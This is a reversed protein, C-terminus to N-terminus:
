KNKKIKNRIDKFKPFAKSYLKFLFASNVLNFEGIFRVFNGNFGKKFKYLGYLPNEPNLDGSVGRFDYINCGLDITDQIMKWQMLFNPMTDRLEDNSAGYLYWGKNGYYCYLAGSIYFEKKDKYVEISNIKEKFGDIQRTCEKINKNLTNYKKCLNEVKKNDQEDELQIRVNDYKNQIKNLEKTKNEIKEKLRQLDKEYNYKVLYLRAYPALNNLISKFYDKNRVIFNDRNGTIIMLKQFQNLASETINTNDFVDVTLGRDKALKINYRWKTEFDKFIRDKIDQKSESDKKNVNLRFVFDPQIGEFNKTDSKNIKYGLSILNNKIDLTKSIIKQNEELHLDPDITIFAINNQKSFAKLYATFEKLLEKNSYDCIFGRPCYGMYKGTYPIKRLLLMCSLINKNNEDYGMIYKHQWFNKVKAWHSTQFVHGFDNEINFKNIDIENCEKFLYM